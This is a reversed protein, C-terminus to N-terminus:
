PNDNISHDGFRRLLLNGDEARCSVRDGQNIRFHGIPRGHESCGSYNDYRLGGDRKLVSIDGQQDQLLHSVKALCGQLEVRQQRTAREFDDRFRKEYRLRPFPLLGSSLAQERTRNWILTGWTSLGAYSPETERGSSVIEIMGEPIGMVEEVEFLHGANMMELQVSYQNLSNYDIQLPLRPISLLHSGSEFIYIMEDAYFMGIITLYGQLSKFGGTLNFVVRYGQAQYGPVCEECWSILEKIGDAFDTRTATSLKKPAYVEVFAAYPKLFASLIAATTKGMVTDTTVLYLVDQRAQDLQEEYLGYLGNLEASIRRRKAVNSNALEDAVRQKLEDVKASTEPDLTQQNAASNLRAMWESKEEPLLGNLLLSIGVTSLVFRANRM